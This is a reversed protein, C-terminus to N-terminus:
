QEPTPAPCAQSESLIVRRTNIFWQSINRFRDSVDLLPSLQVGQLRKDVGYTFVPYYLIAAPVDEMFVMQFQRYLDAHQALDTTRRAQQLLDDAESNEWGSYNQGADAKDPTQTSHWFNYPDPDAPLDAIASLVM